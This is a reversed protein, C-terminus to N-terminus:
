EVQERDPSRYYYVLWPGDDFGVFTEVIGSLYQTRGFTLNNTLPAWTERYPSLLNRHNLEIGPDYKPKHSKARL